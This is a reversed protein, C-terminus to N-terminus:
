RGFQVSHIYQIHIYEGCIYQIHTYICWMCTYLTYTHVYISCMYVTHTYVGCIYQAHTYVGCIYVTHTYIGCTRIYVTHTHIYGVYISYTHTYVWMRIYQIHTYVGCIYMSVYQTFTCGLRVQLRDHIPRLCNIEKCHIEFKTTMMESFKRSSKLKRLLHVAAVMGHGGVKGGGTEAEDLLLNIDKILPQVKGLQAEDSPDLHVALMKGVLQVVAQLEIHLLVQAPQDHVLLESKCLQAVSNAARVMNALPHEEGLLHELVTLFYLHALPQQMRRAGASATQLRFCEQYFKPIYPGPKGLDLNEMLVRGVQLRPQARHLSLPGSETSDHDSHQECVGLIRSLYLKFVYMSIAGEPVQTCVHVHIYTCM